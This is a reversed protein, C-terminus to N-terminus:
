NGEPRLRVFKQEFVETGWQSGPQEEVLEFGHMEYLHRAADLGRFTWLHTEEFGRVDVHELARRLLDRGVGRGRCADSMIFWRLHAVGPALDEGDIAITGVIESGLEARLVLNDPHELRGYFEDMERALKREFVLGFGYNQSCFRAQLEVARSLLGVVPGASVDVQRAERDGLARAYTQLGDTILRRDTTTLRELANRVQGRGFAAIRAFLAQGEATLQLVKRRPDGGDRQTAVFGKRELGALLRSITSKDLMLSQRLDVASCGRREGIEIIAHVGSASLDTGALDSKLFGLQRVIARSSARVADIHGSDLHNM